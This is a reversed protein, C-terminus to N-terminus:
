HKAIFVSTSTNKALASKSSYNARFFLIEFMKSKTDEGFTDFRSSFEVAIENPTMNHNLSSALELLRDNFDDPETPTLRYEPAGYCSGCGHYIQPKLTELSVSIVVVFDMGKCRGCHIANDPKMTFITPFLIGKAESPEM